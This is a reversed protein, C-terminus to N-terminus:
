GGVGGLDRGGIEEAEGAAEFGVEGGLVVVGEVGRGLRFALHPFESFSFISFGFSGGWKRNEAKGREGGARRGGNKRMETKGCKRM